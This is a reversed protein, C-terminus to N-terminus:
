YAYTVLVGYFSGQHATDWEDTSCQLMRFTIAAAGVAVRNIYENMLYYFFRIMLRGVVVHAVCIRVIQLGYARM